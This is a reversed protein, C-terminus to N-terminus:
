DFPFGRIDKIPCPRARDRVVHIAINIMASAISACAVDTVISADHGAGLSEIESFSRFGESPGMCHPRSTTIASSSERVVDLRWVAYTHM